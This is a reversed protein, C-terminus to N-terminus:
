NKKAKEEAEALKAETDKVYGPIKTLTLAQQLHPIALAPEGARLFTDGLSRRWFYSLQESRSEPQSAASATAASLARAKHDAALWAEAADKFHWAALKPDLPGIKEYLEAGATFEKARVYQRALQASTAVDVTKGEKELLKVHKEMVEAARDPKDLPGAYIEGLLYLAVPDDPTKALVKEYREALADAKGRQHVFSVLGQRTNSREYIPLACTQVGTM